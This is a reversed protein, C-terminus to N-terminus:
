LQALEVETLASIRILYQKESEYPGHSDRSDDEIGLRHNIDFFFHQRFHCHSRTWELAELLQEGIVPLRPQKADFLLWGVPRTFLQEAIWEQLLEGELERWASELEPWNINQRSWSGFRPNTMSVGSTLQNVESKSYDRRRKGKRKVRPM